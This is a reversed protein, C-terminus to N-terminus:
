AALLLNSQKMGKYSVYTFAWYLIQLSFNVMHFAFQGAPPSVGALGIVV